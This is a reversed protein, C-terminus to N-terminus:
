FTTKILQFSYSNIDLSNSESFSWEEEGTYVWHLTVNLDQIEVSSRSQVARKLLDAPNEISRSELYKIMDHAKIVDSM